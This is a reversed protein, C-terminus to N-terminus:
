STAGAPPAPRSSEQLRTVAVSQVDRNVAPAFAWLVLPEAIVAGLLVSVVIRPLFFWFKTAGIVGHTSAILWGDFSMVMFAWFMGVLIVAFLPAQVVHNLATILSLGALLGTNLIIAGLRAYRAREEPVWDLVSEDVGAIARLRRGPGHSPEAPTLREGLVQERTLLADTGAREDPVDAGPARPSEGAPSPTEGAPGGSSRASHRGEHWGGDRGLDPPYGNHDPSYGNAQVGEATQALDGNMAALPDDPFRQTPEEGSRAQGNDDTHPTM